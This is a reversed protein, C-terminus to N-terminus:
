KLAELLKKIEELKDLTRDIKIRQEEIMEEKKRILSKEPFIIIAKPTLRMSMASVLMYPKYKIGLAECIVTLFKKYQSKPLWTLRNLDIMHLAVVTYDDRLMQELIKIDSSTFGGFTELFAFIPKMNKVAKNYREDLIVDYFDSHLYGKMIEKMEKEVIIFRESKHTVLLSVPVQKKESTGDSHEIVITHEKIIRYVWEPQKELKKKSESM